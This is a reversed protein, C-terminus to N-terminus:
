AAVESERAGAMLLGLRAETAEEVPMEAVIEGEFMVLVRTSLNLIESLEASILLVGRGRDRYDTIERHISEIAGIDVGRTPQEAILVPSDFNMERAVVIKQLNGGSLTGVLTRPSAIKVGFRSILGKAFQAMRRPYILIGKSLPKHRHFGMALNSIADADLASGVGRRDEPIYSIGAERRARTTLKQADTGAINIEGNMTPIIGMIARALEGQGNGAVGAIGVIEGARVELSLNNVTPKDGAGAVTLDRVTLVAKGPAQAPDAQTLDVDRGVMWRTIEQADTDATVLQAVSRGDRLITVRDSVEMVEKMKHTILIITRGDEKLTRLVEFLRQTEQPTLVATPEDLILVSADRYLAKIIEVRQLVGVPAESVKLTPDVALGYKDSIERVLEVAMASDILGNKTPESRFVVNEAISLSPFLKFEQFVMGIGAEIADLPSKFDVEQGRLFIQGADPHYLGALISMLVSKGAGNEGMLAHIEGKRVQLDVNEDAVVDPFVKTIGRMDVELPATKDSM